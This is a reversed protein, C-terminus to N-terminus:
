VHEIEKETTEDLKLDGPRIPRLYRDKIVGYRTMRYGEPFLQVRFPHQFVVIWSEADNAGEGTFGDPLKFTQMPAISLVTVYKGIVNGRQSERIVIALDGPKCRM